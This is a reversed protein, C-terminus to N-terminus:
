CGLGGGDYFYAGGEVAVVGDRVEGGVGGLNTEGGGGGEAGVEGGPGVVAGQVDRVGGGVVEDVGGDELFRGVGGYVHGEPTVPRTYEGQTHRRRRQHISAPRHPPRLIESPIPPNRPTHRRRFTPRFEFQPIQNPIRRIIRVDHFAREHVTMKTLVEKEEGRAGAASNWRIERRGATLVADKNALRIRRHSRKLISLPPPAIITPPRQHQPTM